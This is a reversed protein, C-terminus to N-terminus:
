CPSSPFWRSCSPCPFTWSSTPAMFMRLLMFFGGLLLYPMYIRIGSNITGYPLRTVLSFLIASVLLLIGAGLLGREGAPLGAHATLCHRPDAGRYSHHHRQRFCPTQQLARRKLTNRFGLFIIIRLPLLLVPHNGAPYTRLAQANGPRVSAPAQQGRINGM